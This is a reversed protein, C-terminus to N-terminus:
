APASTSRAPSTGPATVEWLLTPSAPDTIDIAYAAPTTGIGFGTQFQSRDHALEEHRQRQRELLRRLHRHRARQRRHPRRQGQAAAAVVRPLFAWLETGLAPCINTKTATTGGTSACVAHIEGDLAGFYAMTPRAGNGAITSPGIVAVTSRDVGGLSGALIKSIISTYNTSTLGSIIKSGITTSSTSNSCDLTTVALASGFTTGSAATSNTNTFIARCTGSYPASCAGRLRRSRAARARM